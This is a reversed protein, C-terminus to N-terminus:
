DIVIIVSGDSSNASYSVVNRCLFDGGFLHDIVTRHKPALSTSLNFEILDTAHGGTHESVEMIRVNADRKLDAVFELLQRLNKNM